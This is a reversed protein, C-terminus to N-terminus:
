NILYSKPLNSQKEKVLGIFDHLNLLNSRYSAPFCNKYEQPIVLQLKSDLMERMQNSSVGQQLTFLYKIDVRNAETLVQRWRDKCTTKAGLVILDGAPFLIDHYAISNPFLFDPKKKDETIAQEEFILHNSSFISSLHHELSKGARSKRSNLVGLATNIFDKLSDFPKQLVYGYIKEEIKSFLTYETEIWKLLIQDPKTCLQNEDIRFANNYCLRAGESMMSTSPFESYQSVFKEIQQALKDDQNVNDETSVVNILNNTDSPSLNFYSLFDNIDDETNLDYAKYYDESFKALVFLDGIHEDTLFPFGRGFRTIRYENRTKQGYYKFHSETTFDDQWLIKVVRDLFDGKKGPESFLIKKAKKGVLYGCQHGGTAGADNPSVFKCYALQAQQVTRIASSSLDSM